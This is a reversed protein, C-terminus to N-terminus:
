SRLPRQQHPESVFETYRSHGFDHAVYIQYHWEFLARCSLNYAPSIKQSEHTENFEEIALREGTYDNYLSIGTGIIDDFYCTIRPLRYKEDIDFLKLGVATSTYLDMDHMVAGIPAPDHTDVFSDLTDAINGLVLTADTLRRRLAEVDMVFFGEQWHYPIDRYDATSPLGKGTDFGYVDIDVGLAASFQEAHRELAVLGNGGAVGFEVISIRPIGLRRALRAAERVCYAYAPREIAGVDARFQYSGIEWKEISKLTLTRLPHPDLMLKLMRSTLQGKATM